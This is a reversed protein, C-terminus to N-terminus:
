NFQIDKMLNDMLNALYKPLLNAPILKLAVEMAKKVINEKGEFFMNAIVKVLTHGQLDCLGKPCKFKKGNVLEIENNTQKSFLDNEAIKYKQLLDKTQAAIKNKQNVLNNLTTQSLDLVAECIENLHEEVDASSFDFYNLLNQFVEIQKETEETPLQKQQQKELKKQLEAHHNKFIYFLSLPFCLYNEISYVDTTVLNGKLKRNENNDKDLLAWIIEPEHASQLQKFENVVGHDDCMIEFESIKTRKIVEDCGGGYDNKSKLTNIKNLSDKIKEKQDDQLNPINQIEQLNNILGDLTEYDILTKSVNVFYLKTINSQLHKTALLKNYIMTYIKADDGAEVMVYKVDKIVNLSGNSLKSIANRVSPAQSINKSMREYVNDANSMVIGNNEMVFINEKPVLAVTDLRHTTLIVQINFDKVLMTIANYFISCLEPDMHRDPEDFLMVDITKGQKEFFYLIAVLRLVETEGSSLKDPAIEESNYEKHQLLIQNSKFSINYKFKLKEAIRNISLEPHETFIQSTYEEILKRKEEKSSLVKWFEELRSNYKECYYQSLLEAHDLNDIKQILKQYRENYQIIACKLVSITGNIDFHLDFCNVQSDIFDEVKQRWDENQIDHLDTCEKLKEFM